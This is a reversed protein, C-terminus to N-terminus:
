LFQDRLDAPVQTTYSLWATRLWGTFSALDPHVM